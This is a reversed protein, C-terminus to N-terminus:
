RFLLSRLRKFLDFLPFKNYSLHYYPINQSGWKKYFYAVSTIDSGEFDLHTLKGSFERIFFDILFHTANQKEGEPTPAGLIYYASHHSLFFLASALRQGEKVVSFGILHKSEMGSEALMMLRTYIGKNLGNIDGYRQLYNTIIFDIYEDYEFTIGTSKRLSRRADKSFNVSIHEYSGSINLILNTRKRFQFTSTLMEVNTLSLSYEIYAFKKRLVTLFSTETESHVSKTSYIGLQQIFFPMYVYRIGYKKNWPVPMIFEYDDTVLADWHEAMADLYWSYAYVTGNLSSDIVSDWRQKDIQNHKLYHIQM